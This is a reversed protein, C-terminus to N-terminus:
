IISITNPPLYIVKVNECLDNLATPHSPVNDLILLIKFDLNLSKCYREAEPHHDLIHRVTSESSILELV